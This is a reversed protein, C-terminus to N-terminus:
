SNAQEDEIIILKSIEERQQPTMLNIVADFMGVKSAYRTSLNDEWNYQKIIQDTYKEIKDNLEQATM